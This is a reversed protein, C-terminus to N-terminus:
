KIKNLLQDLREASELYTSDQVTRLERQSNLTQQILEKNVERQRSGNWIGFILLGIIVVLLALVVIQIEVFFRHYFINLKTKM